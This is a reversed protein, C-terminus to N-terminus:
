PFREVPCIFFSELFLEKFFYINTHCFRCFGKGSLVAVVVVVVVKYTWHFAYINPEEQINKV